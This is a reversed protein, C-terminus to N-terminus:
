IPPTDFHKQKSRYKIYHYYTITVMFLLTAVLLFTHLFDFNM